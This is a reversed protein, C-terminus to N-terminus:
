YIRLLQPILSNCISNINFNVLSGFAEMCELENKLSSYSKGTAYTKWNWWVGCKGCEMINCMGYDKMAPHKCTPCLRIVGEKVMKQFGDDLKDTAAELRVVQKTGCAKCTKRRKSSPMQALFGFDCEDKSCEVWNGARVMTKQLYTHAFDVLHSTSINNLLDPISVPIKCKEDACILWPMIEKDRVKIKVYNEFCDTCIMAHTCNEMTVVFVDEDFDLFCVQCHDFEVTSKRKKISFMDGVKTSGYASGLIKTVM